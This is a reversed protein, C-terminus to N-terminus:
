FESDLVRAIGRGTRIRAVFWAGKAKQYVVKLDSLDIGQDVSAELMTTDMAFKKDDLTM